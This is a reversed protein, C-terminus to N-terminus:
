FKVELHVSGLGIGGRVQPKPPLVLATDPPPVRKPKFIFTSVVMGVGAGVAAWGATNWAINTDWSGQSGDYFLATILITSAGTLALVTGWTRMPAIWGPPRGPANDGVYFWPAEPSDPVVAGSSAAKRRVDPVLVSSDSAFSLGLAALAAASPVGFGLGEMATGAVKFSAIAHVKGDKSLLPGGSNGPNIAADTQLYSGGDITRMGSVIGRSVSFSLEEGAPAGLVYIDQGTPPTAESLVLCPTTKSRDLLRLLAVDARSDLRVVEAPLTAGNRMTVEVKDETAVHAATLIYGEPSIFAGSGIGKKTKVVVTATLAKETEEPMKPAGDLCAKLAAAEYHAAPEPSSSGRLADVFRPRALLSNLTGLLLSKAGESAQARKLNKEESRATFRYVVEDSQRDLLEWEVALGCTTHELGTCDFAVIAGALMFDTDPLENAKFVSKETPPVSYGADRLAQNFLQVYEDKLGAINGTEQIKFILQAFVLSGVEEGKVAIPTRRRVPEAQAQLSLGSLSFALVGALAFKFLRHM